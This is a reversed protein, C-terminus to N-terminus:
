KPRWLYSTLVLICRAKFFYISPHTIATDQEHYQCNHPTTFM